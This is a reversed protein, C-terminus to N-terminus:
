TATNGLQYVRELWKARQPESSKLVSGLETVKVPKFGSFGLVSHKMMKTAPAGYVLKYYWVPTDMTIIVRATRGTLLRKPFMDHKEYKFAFGPLFLRDLMGKLLAPVSGWWLPFVIVVHDAQEIQQKILLLAPELVQQSDYGSQLITEFPCDALHIVEVHHGAENAGQEYREALCRCLSKEKPNGNIIVIKKM